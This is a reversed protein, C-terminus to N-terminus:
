GGGGVYFPGGTNQRAGETGLVSWDRYCEVQNVVVRIVGSRYILRLDDAAEGYLDCALLLQHRGYGHLVWADRAM